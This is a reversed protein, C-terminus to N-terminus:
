SSTFIKFFEWPWIHLYIVDKANFRTYYQIDCGHYKKRLCWDVEDIAFFIVPTAIYVAYVILIIKVWRKM